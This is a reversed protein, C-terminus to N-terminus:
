GRANGLCFCCGDGCSMSEKALLERKKMGLTLPVSTGSHERIAKKQLSASKSSTGVAAWENSLRGMKSSNDASCWVQMQQHTSNEM